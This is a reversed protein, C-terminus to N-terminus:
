HNERDTGGRHWQGCATRQVDHGHAYVDSFKRMVNFNCEFIGSVNEEFEILQHSMTGIPVLDYKMAFYVNSTGIFKGTWPHFMGGEDEYGGQEDIAKM